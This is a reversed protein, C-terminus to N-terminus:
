LQWENEACKDETNGVLLLFPPPNPPCRRLRATGGTRGAVGWDKEEAAEAEAETVVAAAAEAEAAAQAAQAAEEGDEAESGWTGLSFAAM